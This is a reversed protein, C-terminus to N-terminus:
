LKAKVGGLGLGGIVGKLEQWDADRLAKIGEEDREEKEEVGEDGEGEGEGGNFMGWVRWFVPIAVKGRTKKLFAVGVLLWFPQNWLQEQLLGFKPATLPPFPIVSAQPRTQRPKQTSPSPKPITPFYPSKTTPPKKPPKHPKPLKATLPNTPTLLSSQPKTPQLPSPPTAPSRSERKIKLKQKSKPQPKPSVEGDEYRLLFGPPPSPSLSSISSLSSDSDEMPSDNNRAVASEKMLKDSNQALDKNLVTTEGIHHKRSDPIDIDHVSHATENESFIQSYDLDNFDIPPDSLESSDEDKFTPLNVPPSLFESLDENELTPLNVPQDLLERSDVNLNENITNSNSNQQSNRAANLPASLSYLDRMNDNFSRHFFSM